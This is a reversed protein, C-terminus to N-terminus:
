VSSDLHADLEMIKKEFERLDKLENGKRNLFFAHIGMKQPTEYDFKYHDGVHVLEDPIVGLTNCIREYFDRVKRVQQFDSTASFIHTFYSRISALTLSLFDKHANSAVILTYKRSLRDLVEPVEEYVAIRDRHLTLLNHPSNELEFLRIWYDLEYWRIDEDGINEYARTVIRHATEFDTHHTEAYLRPMGELWVSDAFSPDVLTGDVDFSIVKLM